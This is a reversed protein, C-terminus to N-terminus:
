TIHVLYRSYELPGHRCGHPGGKLGDGLTQLYGSRGVRRCAGLCRDFQGRLGRFGASGVAIM